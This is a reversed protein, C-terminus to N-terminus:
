PKGRTEEEIIAELDFEEDVDAIIAITRGIPVIQNEIALIKRLVGTAPAEVEITVKDTEIELIKEGKEVTDGEKKLWQIITGEEMTMGLKPMIMRTITM